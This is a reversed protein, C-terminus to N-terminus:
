TYEGIGIEFYILNCIGALHSVFICDYIVNFLYNLLFIYHKYSNFIYNDIVYFIYSILWYFILIDIPTIIIINTTM